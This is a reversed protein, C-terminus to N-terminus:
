GKSFLIPGIIGTTGTEYFLHLGSTLLSFITEKGRFLSNM